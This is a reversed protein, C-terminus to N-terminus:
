EEARVVTRRYAWHTLFRQGEPSAGREPSLPCLLRRDSCPLLSGGGQATRPRGLSSCPALLCTKVDEKGWESKIPPQRYGKWRSESWGGGCAKEAFPEEQRLKGGRSLPHLPCDGPALTEEPGEAGM